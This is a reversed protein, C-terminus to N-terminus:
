RVHEAFARMVQAADDALCQLTTKSLQQRELTEKRNGGAEGALECVILSSLDVIEKMMRPQVGAESFVEQPAKAEWRHACVQNRLIGVKEILNRKASIKEKLAKALDPKSVEIDGILNCLSTAKGNKDEHFLLDTTVCFSCFLSDCLTLFFQPHAERAERDAAKKEFLACFVTYNWTLKTVADIMEDLEDQYTKM